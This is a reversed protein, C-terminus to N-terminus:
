VSRSRQHLPGEDRSGYGGYLDYGCRRRRSEGAVRAMFIAYGVAASFYRVRKLRDESLGELRASVEEVNM